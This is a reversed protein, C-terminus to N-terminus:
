RKQLRTRYQANIIRWTKIPNLLCTSLSFYDSGAKQYARLISPSYIGGGGIIEIDPRIEKLNEILDLNSPILTLGSLAGKSTPKTNSIHIIEVGMDIIDLVRELKEQHPIKVIVYSFMKKCDEIIKPDLFRKIQANPCSVNLEVGLLRNKTKLVDRIQGWDSEDLLSISVICPINPISDVGGNRLGVNNLWGFQTKRLTTLVRWLGRRKKLTYTGIIRTTNPYLFKVISLNSFPPSLIIKKM